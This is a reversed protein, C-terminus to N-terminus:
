SEPARELPLRAIFTTGKGSVGESEATIVGNHGEVIEKVVVTIDMNFTRLAELVAIGNMGPMQLDLIVM